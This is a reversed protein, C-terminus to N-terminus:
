TSDWSGVINRVKIKYKRYPEVLWETMQSGITPNLVQSVPFGQRGVGASPQFQILRPSSCGSCEGGVTKGCLSRERTGGQQQKKEAEGM